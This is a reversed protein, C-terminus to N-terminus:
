VAGKKQSWPLLDEVPVKNHAEVAPLVVEQVVAVTQLVEAGAQLAEVVDAVM